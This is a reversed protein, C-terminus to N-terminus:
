PEEEEDGSADNGSTSSMFDEARIAGDTAKQIAFAIDVSVNRWKQGSIIRTMRVRCIGANTAFATQSIGNETLWARLKIGGLTPRNLREGDLVSAPPESLGANVLEVGAQKLACIISFEAVMAAERDAAHRLTTPMPSLGDDRLQRLWLSRPTDDFPCQEMHDGVRRELSQETIGVYRFRGDRPDILGYVTFSM